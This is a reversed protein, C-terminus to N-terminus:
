REVLTVAYLTARDLHIRVLCRPAAPLPQEFKWKVKHRLSDGTIPEVDDATFGRLRQGDENLVEVRISGNKADANLEIARVKSLDMPKLTVQGVNHLPKKLTPQDSVAVPEIGVFRDRKMTALGIGSSLSYDDGGTAGQSYAGYYFRVEDGVVVYQPCVFLSGSDFANGVSRPL